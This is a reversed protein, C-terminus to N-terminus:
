SDSLTTPGGSVSHSECPTMLHLSVLTPWTGHLVSNEKISSSILAIRITVIIKISGVSSSAGASLRGFFGELSNLPTKQFAAHELTRRIVDGPTLLGLNMTPSLVSHFLSFHKNTIADEFRGFDHLRHELFNDLWDQSQMATVPLWFDGSM